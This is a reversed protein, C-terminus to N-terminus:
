KKVLKSNSISRNENIGFSLYHVLPNQGSEAVDAHTRIYENTSFDPSPDYGELAGIKIYHEEPKMGYFNFINYSEIYWDSNFLVSNKLLNIKRSLGKKFKRSKYFYNSQRFINARLWINIAPSSSHHQEDMSESFVNSTNKNREKELLEQSLFLFGLVKERERKERNLEIQLKDLKERLDKNEIIKKNIESKEVDNIKM